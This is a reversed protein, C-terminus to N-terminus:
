KSCQLANESFSFVKEDHRPALSYHVLFLEDYVRLSLNIQSPFVTKRRDSCTWRTPTFSKTSHIREGPWHLLKVETWPLECFHSQLSERKNAKQEQVFSPRPPQLRLSLKAELYPHDFAVRTNCRFNQHFSSMRNSFFKMLHFRTKWERKQKFKRMARKCLVDLLWKHIEHLFSPFARTPSIHNLKVICAHLSAPYHWESWVNSQIRQRMKTPIKGKSTKNAVASTSSTRKANVLFAMPTTWIFFDESKRHWWDIRESTAGDVRQRKTNASRRRSCWVSPQSASYGDESM